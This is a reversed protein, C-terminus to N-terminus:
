SIEAGFLSFGVSGDASYVSIVDTASLTIGITLFISDSAAIPSDYAIYMEDSISVGLKKVAIRFTKASATQNCIVLTSVITSTAAPVTYLNTLTAATPIVQGLVKHVQAM